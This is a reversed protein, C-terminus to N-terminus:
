VPVEHAATVAAFVTGHRAKLDPLMAATIEYYVNEEDEGTRRGGFRDHFALTNENQKRVDYVSKALGLVDFGFRYILLATDLAAKAPKNGDLIWSGWTFQGDRIDYVRVVGCRRGDDRREIVFYYESGAAERTKYGRIWDRQTAPSGSVASLHRNYRADTRLGFIYEADDEEVLRLRTTHGTLPATSITM